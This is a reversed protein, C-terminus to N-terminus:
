INFFILLRRGICWFYLLYSVAYLSVLAVELVSAGERRVGDLGLCVVM